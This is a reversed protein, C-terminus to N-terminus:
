ATFTGSATFTHVTYTFGGSSYTTVTGGTARQAGLYSIIVIGSGGASSNGGGGGTNATGATSSLSSNGGAWDGRGGGGAGGLGGYPSRDTGAGATPSGGGGGGYFTSTGTISSAIGSGGNPQGGGGGGGGGAGGGGGCQRNADGGDGSNRGNGGAFGQGSTGAGGYVPEGVYQGAGGGSGGSAGNNNLDLSRGGGVLTLGLATTNAGNTSFAGGAGVTITYATGASLPMTSTLLGGAGGGGGRYGGGGGGGAVALYSVSYADGAVSAWSTGNYVETQGTTSNFRLQGAVPSAPRQGTTGVPLTYAGTATVNGGTAATTNDNYTLGSTGNISFAM